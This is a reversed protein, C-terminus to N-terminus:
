LDDVDEGKLAECRNLLKKSKKIQVCLEDCLRPDQSVLLVSSMGTLKHTGREVCVTYFCEQDDSSIGAEDQTSCLSVNLFMFRM